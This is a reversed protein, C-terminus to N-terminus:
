FSNFLFSLSLPFIVSCGWVTAFEFLLVVPDEQEFSHAM